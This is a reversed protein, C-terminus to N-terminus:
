TRSTLDPNRGNQPEMIIAGISQLDRLAQEILEPPTSLMEAIKTAHKTGDALAFVARHLRSWAYTQRPHVQVIRRPFFAVERPAPVAPVPQTAVEQQPTFTWRIRGLRSLEQVARNGTMYRGSNGVISCSVITGATINIEIRCPERLSAVGSPADAYLLGTKQHEQM